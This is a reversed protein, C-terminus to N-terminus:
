NIIKRKDFYLKYLNDNKRVFGLKQYLRNAPNKVNTNVTLYNMKKKGAIKIVERMIASAIGRGRYEEAVAVEDVFGVKATFINAEILVIMGVLRDCEYAAVFTNNEQKMAREINKKTVSKIGQRKVFVDMIKIISEKDNERLEEYKISKIIM